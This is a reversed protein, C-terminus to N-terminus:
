KQEELAVIVVNVGPRDSDYLKRAILDTVQKDDGYMKAKTMADFIARSLKDLDPPVTPFRRKEISVSAPRPLYFVAFIEVAGTLPTPPAYKRAENEVARQWATTEKGAILVVKGTHKNKIPKFSGKPRPLGEVFFSTTWKARMKLGENGCVGEDAYRRPYFAYHSVMASQSTRLDNLDRGDSLIARRQSWVDV